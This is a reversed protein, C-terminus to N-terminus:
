PRDNIHLYPQAMRTTIGRNLSFFVFLRGFTKNKPVDCYAYFQCLNACTSTLYNGLLSGDLAFSPIDPLAGSPHFKPNEQILLYVLGIFYYLTYNYTIPCCSPSSIHPSSGNINPLPLGSAAAAPRYRPKPNPLSLLPVCPFPSKNTEMDRVPNPRYSM